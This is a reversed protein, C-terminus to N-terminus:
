TPVAESAQASVVEGDPATSSGEQEMEGVVTASLAVVVLPVTVAVMVVVAAVV